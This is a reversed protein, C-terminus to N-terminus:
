SIVVLNVEHVSTASARTFGRANLVLGIYSIGERHPLAVVVEEADAMRPVAKPNVFSAVEARTIGADVARTILEVKQAVTLTAPDNQLGDRAAVEVIQIPVSQTVNVLM